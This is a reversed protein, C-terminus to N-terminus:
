SQIGEVVGGKEMGINETGESPKDEMFAIVDMGHQLMKTITILLISM